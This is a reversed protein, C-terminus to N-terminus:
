STAAIHIFPQTVTTDNVVVSRSPSTVCVGGNDALNLAVIGATQEIVLLHGQSDFAIGRPKNLGSAVLRAEYGPAVSPAAVSASITTPCSSATGSTTQACALDALPLVLALAVFPLNPSYMAPSQHQGESVSDTHHIHSLM